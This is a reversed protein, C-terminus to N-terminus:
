RSGWQPLRCRNLLQETVGLGHQESSDQTQISNFHSPVYPLQAKSRCHPSLRCNRAVSQRIPPHSSMESLSKDHNFACCDWDRM